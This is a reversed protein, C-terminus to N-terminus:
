VKFKMYMYQYQMTKILQSINHYHSCIQGKFVSFLDYM